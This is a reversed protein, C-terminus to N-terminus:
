VLIWKNQSINDEIKANDEANGNKELNKKNKIKSGQSHITESIQEGDMTINVAQRKKRKPLSSTTEICLVILQEDCAVKQQDLLQLNKLASAMGFMSSSSSSWNNCNDHVVTEGYKNSGHWVFKLPWSDDQYVDRGDFSIIKPRELFQGGRGAIADNWSGIILEG